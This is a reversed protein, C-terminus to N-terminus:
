QTDMKDEDKVSPEETITEATPKEETKREKEQRAKEEEMSMRLALALEPDISPDVGFEFSDGAVGGSADGVGGLGAFDAEESIIPSSAVTDSLLLPGPPVTVLHSNDGSNVNEIFKELKETNEGEEGFNIFDVAINNKKMKKALKVLDKIDEEVPSGVFVIIRQRQIKNQRHKLALGAVQISTALHSTGHLKTDHVGTLIKGFDTTLTALVEPGQGGMSMLGVASEPNAQTKATFILHVTDVQADFRTPTYDGNRMFESNDIVIMTAELVM